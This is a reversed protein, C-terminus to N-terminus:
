ESRDIYRGRKEIEAIREIVAEGMESRKRYADCFMGWYHEWQEYHTSKLAQKFLHLDVAQKEIEPSFEGLGFDIFVVAEDRWIMNSTTLDGHIIGACHLAAVDTGIRQMLTPSLGPTSLLLEKVRQGTVYEMVLAFSQKDVYYLLPTHAGARKAEHLLRAEHLTRSLVIKQDLAPIRYGKRVREKIVLDTPLPIGFVELATARYLKGEAGQNILEMIFRWSTRQPM